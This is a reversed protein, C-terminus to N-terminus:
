KFEHSIVCNKGNKKGYYLNDDARKILSDITDGKEYNAIGITITIAIEKDDYIIKHNEVNCRINDALLMTEEADEYLIILMEEGGYRFVDGKGDIGDCIIGAVDKLVEDGCSHGYNDNVLKFDDLDIMILSFNQQNNGAKKLADNLFVDLRRRNRLMTLSDYDAIKTLENALGKEILGTVAWISGLGLFLLVLRLIVEPIFFEDRVPLLRDPIILWSVFISLVIEISACAVMKSDLFVAALTAFFLSYAWIGRSPVMYSIFNWQIFCLILLFIKGNRLVKPKIIGNEDECNNRFYFGILTYIICTIDFIIITWDPVDNYFGLIRLLSVTAGASLTISPIVIIIFKFVKNIYIEIPTLGNNDM